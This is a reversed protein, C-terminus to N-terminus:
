RNKRAAYAFAYFYKKWSEATSKYENSYMFYDVWLERVRNLEKLKSLNKPDRITFDLLELSREFAKMAYNENGKARWNIAREVDSGVNGMQEMLTMSNWRDGELSKHIITM